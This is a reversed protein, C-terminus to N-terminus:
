EAAPRVVALPCPAHHILAQSTSGLLLGAFGGRGRTGAVLLSAGAAHDLLARVPLERVVARTVAVDPYKAGWGALREALVRHEGAEVAAWDAGFREGLPGDVLADTWALVAVLGVGRLSAEEFAYAVAAEATPSGDVGVVVPGDVAETGRVVVVPCRAHAALAVAVSGILLGTFGGLGRSGVVVCSAAASRGVLTAAADGPVVEVTVPVDAVLARARELHERGAEELARRVEGGTLVVQPYGRVPTPYVHVLDLGVGRRAAEAAAWRVADLASESGDVGVLIPAGM